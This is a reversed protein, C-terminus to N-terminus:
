SGGAEKGFWLEKMRRALLEEEPKAPWLEVPVGERMAAALNFFVQKNRTYSKLQNKTEARKTTKEFPCPNEIQQYNFLSRNEIIYKERIYILPRIIYIDNDSLYRRPQLSLIQGSYLISMLFTEVADDYHHGFAVKKIKNRRMYDVLAGRRFHACKACPTGEKVSLIYSAIETKEIHYPVELEQCLWKLYDNNNVAFGPDITIASLQFDLSLYKRLIALAYLLFSSDKGGSLGVLIHDGDEILNFEAIARVIKNSINGPLSLKLDTV